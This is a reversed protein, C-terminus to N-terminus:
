ISSGNNNELMNEQKKEKAIRPQFVSCILVHAVFHGEAEM